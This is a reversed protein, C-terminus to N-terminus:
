LGGGASECLQDLSNIAQGFQRLASGHGSFVPAKTVKEESFLWVNVANKERDVLRKVSDVDEVDSM